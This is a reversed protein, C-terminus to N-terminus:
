IIVFLILYNCIFYLLHMLKMISNDRMRTRRGKKKKRKEREKGEKEREKKGEKKRRMRPGLIGPRPGIPRVELIKPGM